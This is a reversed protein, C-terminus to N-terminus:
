QNNIFNRLEEKDDSFTFKEELQYYDESEYCLSYAAKAVTLMNDSFSFQDLVTGIQAVSLCKRGVFDTALDTKDDEFAEAEIIRLFLNFDAEDVFCNNFDGSVEDDMEPVEEIEEETWGGSSTTTTTTTTTVTQESYTSSETGSVQTNMTMGEQGEIGTGQVNVNAGNEDVSMSISISEEGTGVSTNTHVGEQSETTTTAITTTVSESGSANGENVTMDVNVSGNSPNSPQNGANEASNTQTNTTTNSTVTGSNNSEGTHYVIVTQAGNAAPASNLPVESFFRLKFKGRKNVIQYTILTDSKVIINKDLTFTNDDAMVRCNYYSARLGQIRVNSESNENQMVGNLLVHFTYGSNDFIVVEGNRQAHSAVSMLLVLLLTFHKM